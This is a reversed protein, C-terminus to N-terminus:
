VYRIWCRILAAFAVKRAEVESADAFRVSARDAALWKLLGDPDAIDLGGPGLNKVKAGLHLIVGVGVKERLHTTAFYEHTKYSPAKWKIGESIGPAAGLIVRRIAEIGAKCPHELELMFADVAAEPTPFTQQASAASSYSTEGLIAVTALVLASAMICTKFTQIM